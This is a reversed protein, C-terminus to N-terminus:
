ADDGTDDADDEPELDEPPLEEGEGLQERLAQYRRRIKRNQKRLRDASQHLRQQEQFLLHVEDRSLALREATGSPNAQLWAELDPTAGHPVPKRPRSMRPTERNAPPAAM